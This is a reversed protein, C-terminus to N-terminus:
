CYEVAALLLCHISDNASKSVGTFFKEMMEDYDPPSDLKKMFKAFHFYSVLADKPNRMVYIIQFSVM